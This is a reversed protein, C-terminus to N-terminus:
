KKESSLSSMRAIDKKIIGLLATNKMQGSALEFRMRRLQSKKEQLLKGIEEPSRERIEKMKM